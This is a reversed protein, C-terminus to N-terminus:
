FRPREVVLCPPLAQDLAKRRREQIQGKLVPEIWAVSANNPLWRFVGADHAALLRDGGTEGLENVQEWAAGGALLAETTEIAEDLREYANWQEKKPGLLIQEIRGQIGHIPHWVAHLPLDGRADPLAMWERPWSLRAFGGFLAAEQALWHLVTEGKDNRLPHGDEEREVVTALVVQLWNTHAAEWLAPWQLVPNAGARILGVAEQILGAMREPPDSQEWARAERCLEGMSLTLIQEPVPRVTARALALLRDEPSLLGTDM